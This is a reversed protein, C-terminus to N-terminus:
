PYDCKEERKIDWESCCNQKARIQLWGEGWGAVIVRTKLINAGEQLYPKLDINPNQNWNTSLECDRHGFGNDVQRNWPGGTVVELKDGGYPGIYVLHDNLTIKMYDDFGVNFLFFEKIKDKNTIKFTTTRDYIACHGRWHNDAITGITLVGNTYEFKMDSEVSGREIGGMDCEKSIKCTISTIEDRCTKIKSARTKHCLYSYKSDIEVVQEPYCSNIQSANYQDCTDITKSTLTETSEKCDTYGGKLYDFEDKADKVQKLAKDLYGKNNVMVGNEDKTFGHQDLNEQRKLTAKSGFIAGIQCNDKQCNVKKVNNEQDSNNSHNSRNGSNVNDGNDSNDSSDSNDGAERNLSGEGEAHILSMDSGKVNVGHYGAPGKLENTEMDQFSGEIKARMEDAIAKAESNAMAQNTTLAIIVISLLLTLTLQILSSLTTCGPKLCQQKTKLLFSKLNIM